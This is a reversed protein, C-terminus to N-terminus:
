PNVYVEIGNIIRTIEPALTIDTINQDETEDLQLYVGFGKSKNVDIQDKIFSTDSNFIPTDTHKSTMNSYTISSILLSASFLIWWGLKILHQLIM